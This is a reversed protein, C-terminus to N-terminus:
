RMFGAPFRGANSPSEYTANSQRSPQGSRPIRGSSAAPKQRTSADRHVRGTGDLSPGPLAAFASEEALVDVKSDIACVKAGPRCFVTGVSTSPLVSRPVANLRQPTHAAITRLWSRTDVPRSTVKAPRRPAIPPSKPLSPRQFRAGGLGEGFGRTNTRSDGLYAFDLRPAPFDM